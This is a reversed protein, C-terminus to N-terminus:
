NFYKNILSEQLKQMEKLSKQLENKKKNIEEIIHAFQNQLEIPPVIIPCNLIDEKRLNTQGNGDDFSLFYEHRNLLHYFFLPNLKYNDFACIRQNLTYKNDEEILMCKALAKGNPLDSMVMVIDDKKLPTLMENTRRYSKMNSSICKSTILIYKGEEDVVNEHAKGNKFQAVENLTEIKWGKDNFYRNGFMKVFQSQIIDEINDIQRKRIDIIEQVKDLNNAIEAQELLSPLNIEILALENKNFGAQAARKGVNCIYNQFQSSKLYQYLFKRNIKDENPIVKMMAVNYAGELGTLIKGVSAGYRGILIDDKKCTKTSNTVKVYEVKTNEQTYDRIQLMRIYGDKEIDSWEEKPPQSGGQFNCIDVLKIKEM